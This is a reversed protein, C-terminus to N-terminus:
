SKDNLLGFVEQANHYTVAAIHEPTTNRLEALKQVVYYTYGPENPKGRYPVPTLYPADTEVLLKDDPVIKAAAQILPANKFTVMGSFSIYMGLDLFRQALTEDGTFSHMIGGFDSVKSAALLRYTDEFAERSHISVPLNVSAAIALQREFVQRQVDQPSTDWHYDLGIEGLAVVEPLALQTLLVKEADPTYDKASEPHWGVIAYLAEFRQALKIANANMTTDSGVIAMNTVHLSAAHAVFEAEKGAYPTDNLHTHSDFIAM